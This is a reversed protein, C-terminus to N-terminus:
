DALKGSDRARLRGVIREQLAARAEGLVRLAGRGGGRGDWPASTEGSRAIDRRQAVEELCGPAVFFERLVDLEDDVWPRAARVGPYASGAALLGVLAALVEIEPEGLAGLRARQLECLSLGLIRAALGCWRLNGTAGDVAEWWPDFLIREFTAREGLLALGLLVGGFCDTSTAAGAAFLPALVEPDGVKCALAPWFEGFLNRGHCARIEDAIAAERGVCPLDVLGLCGAQHVYHEPVRAAAWLVPEAQEVGLYGLAHLVVEPVGDRLGGEVVFARLLREGVERDGLRMLAHGVLEDPAALMRKLLEAVDEAGGDSVVARCALLRLTFPADAACLLRTAALM